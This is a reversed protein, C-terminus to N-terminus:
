NLEYPLEMLSSYHLQFFTSKIEHMYNKTSLVVCLLIDAVYIFFKHHIPQVSNLHKILLFTLLTVQGTWMDIDFTKSHTIENRILSRLDKTMEIRENTRGIM